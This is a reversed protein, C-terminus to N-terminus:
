TALEPHEEVYKVISDLVYEMNRMYSTGMRERAGYVAPKYRNWFRVYWWPNFEAFMDIDVVGRKLYLGWFDLSTFLRYWAEYYELNNRSLEAHEEYSSVRSDDIIRTSKLGSSSGVFAGFSNHFFTLKRTSLTQEQNKRTYNLTIIYYAIGVLIGATQLTSLMMQYTVDVMM